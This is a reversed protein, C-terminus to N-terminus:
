NSFLQNYLKPNSTMQDIAKDLRTKRPNSGHRVRTQGTDSVNTNLKLSDFILDVIYNGVLVTAAAGGTKQLANATTCTKTVEKNGNKTTESTSCNSFFSDAAVFGGGALLLSLLPRKKIMEAAYPLCTRMTTNGINTIPDISGNSIFSMAANSSIDNLLNGTPAVAARNYSRSSVIGNSKNFRKQRQKCSETCYKSDARRGRIVNNCDHAECLNEM